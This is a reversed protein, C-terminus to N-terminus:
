IAKKKKAGVPPVLLSERVLPEELPMSFIMQLCIENLQVRLFLFVLLM